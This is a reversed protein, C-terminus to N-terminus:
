SPDDSGAAASELRRRAEEAFRPAHPHWPDLTVAIDYYAIAESWDGARYFINGLNYAASAAIPLDRLEQGIEITKLYIAEAEDTRDQEMYANGLMLWADTNGPDIDVM